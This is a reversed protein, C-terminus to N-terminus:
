LAESLATEYRVAAADLDDTEVPMPHINEAPIPVRNVLIERLKAVARELSQMPVIREDAQFIHVKTWPVDQEVLASFMPWPSSGGSLALSFLGRERVANQVAEAIMVAAYHAASEHDDFVRIEM